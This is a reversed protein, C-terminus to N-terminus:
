QVANKANERHFWDRHKTCAAEYWELWGEISDFSNDEVFKIGTYRSAGALSNPDTKRVQLLLEDYTQKDIVFPPWTAGPSMGGNSGGAAFEQNIVHLPPFVGCAGFYPIDYVFSLLTGTAKEVDPLPEHRLYSIEDGITKLPLEAESPHM